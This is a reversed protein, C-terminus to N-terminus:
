KWLDLLGGVWGVGRSTKGPPLVATFFGPSKAGRIWTEASQTHPFRSCGCVMLTKEVFGLARNKYTFIMYIYIHIYM